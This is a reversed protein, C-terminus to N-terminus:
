AMDTSSSVVNNGLDRAGDGLRYQGEKLKARSPNEFIYRRFRVFSDASQIPLEFPDPQWLRGNKNLRRNIQTATYRRWNSGIRQPGDGNIVSLMVHVHNPMVVFPGLHLKEGDFFRMSSVMIEANEPDALVCSGYGEDLWREYQTRFRKRFEDDLEPNKAVTARWDPRQSNIGHQKAWETIERKQQDLLRWPMSDGLCQTVFFTSGPQFWDPLDAHAQTQDNLSQSQATTSHDNM